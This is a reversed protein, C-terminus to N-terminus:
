FSCQRPGNARASSVEELYSITPVPCTRYDRNDSHTSVSPGVALGSGADSRLSKDYTWVTLGTRLALIALTADFLTISQDTFDALRASAQRYDEPTPNLLTAVTTEKLWRLAVSRSIKRLVLSHVELLTSFSVIASCHQQSLRQLELAQQDHLDSHDVAAYLRGADALVANRV